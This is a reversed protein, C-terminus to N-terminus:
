KAASRSHRVRAPTIRARESNTWGRGPSDTSFFLIRKWLSPKEPVYVKLEDKIAGKVSAELAENIKDIYKSYKKKLAKVTNDDVTGKALDKVETM